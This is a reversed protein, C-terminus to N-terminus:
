THSESNRIPAARAATRQPRRARSESSLMLFLFGAVLFLVASLLLPWAYTGSLDHLAGYAIGGAAIGTYFFFSIAGYIASFHRLGFNRACFFSLLDLEAGISFGILTVATAAYAFSINQWLLLCCGAAALLLVSAATWQPSFVDLSRGVLLRSVFVSAALGSLLTVAQGASLGREIILSQFQTVIGLSAVSICFIAGSLLWFAKSRALSAFALAPVGINSSATRSRMLAIALMGGVFSIVALLRYATRWGSVSIVHALVPPLVMAGISIGLLAIALALGRAKDFRTAIVRTFAVPGTACGLVNLGLIAAYFSGLNGNIMSLWSYSLTLFIVSLAAVRRVGFRDLLVGVFPLGVATVPLAILSIAAATKSWMFEHELARFFLSSVPTYAPVGCMLGLTAALLDLGGARLETSASV